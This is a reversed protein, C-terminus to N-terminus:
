MTPKIQNDPNEDFYNIENFIGARGHVYFGNGLLDNYSNPDFEPDVVICIIEDIPSLDSDDITPKVTINFKYYLPVRVSYKYELDDL